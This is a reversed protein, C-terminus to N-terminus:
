RNLPIPGNLYESKLDYRKVAANWIRLRDDLAEGRRGGGDGGNMHVFYAKDGVGVYDISGQGDSRVTVFQKLIALKDGSWPGLRGHLADRKEAPIFIAGPWYQPGAGQCFGTEWYERPVVAMPIMDAEMVMLDDQPYFDLVYELGRFYSHFNGNQVPDEDCPIEIDGEVCGNCNVALIHESVPLYEKVAAKQLEALDPRRYVISVIRM